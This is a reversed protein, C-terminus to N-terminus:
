VNDPQIPYHRGTDLRRMEESFYARNYLGTAYDHLSLYKLQEEAKKREAIEAKLSESLQLLAATREEVRQELLQHIVKLEEEVRLRDTIDRAVVVAYRDNEFSVLSLNVEVPISSGDCRKFSTVMTERYHDSKESEQASLLGSWPINPTSILVNFATFLLRDRAYGLQKCASENIDVIKGGPINLLFILDYSQDLLARFRKLDDVRQQLEPYYSKRLSREGLGILQERLSEDHRASKKQHPM